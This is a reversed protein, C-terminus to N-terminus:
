ERDQTSVLRFKSHKRDSSDLITLLRPYYDTKRHLLLLCAQTAITLRIEDTLELGACGEFRKEALLVQVHGLLEKQDAESLRAFFPLNRTIVARWEAPVPRQRLLRRRREKM